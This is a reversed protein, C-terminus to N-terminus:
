FSVGNAFLLIIIDLSNVILLCILTRDIVKQYTKRNVSPDRTLSIDEHIWMITLIVIFVASFSVETRPRELFYYFTLPILVLLFLGKLVYKRNM